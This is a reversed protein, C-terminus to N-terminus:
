FAMANEIIEEIRCRLSAIQKNIDNQKSIELHIENVIRQQEDLSIDIMPFEQIVIPFINQNQLGKKYIEILYQFYTTRFYYYAFDANYNETKVRMTFDAFVGDFEEKVIATKGIAVGSRAIIIDNIQLSKNQHESYYRPSLLQSDDLEVELTKISAMSVYFAEGNEDFDSPSVSAGLAIPEALFHKIKRETITTLQSMVFQGAKRHFKVSFRLDPNNSFLQQTTFYTKERKLEDFTEYDFNFERAFVDDIIQKSFLRFSKLRKIECEIPSIEKIAVQQEHLPTNKIRIRLFDNSKYSSIGIGRYIHEDLLNKIKKNRLMHLIFKKDWGDRVKFIFFGNSFVCSNLDDSDFNLAPAKALRLSSLLIHEKTAKFKLRAPHEEKTVPIFDIIDGDEDIYSQGTPIGKYDEDDEYLFVNYDERLIDSLPITDNIPCGFVNWSTNTIFYHYKFDTRLYTDTSLTNFNTKTIRM